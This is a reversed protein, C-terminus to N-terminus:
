KKKGKQESELIDACLLLAIIRPEIESFYWWYPSEKVDRPKFMSRFFQIYDHLACPESLSAVYLAAYCGVEWQSVNNAADRFVQPDLNTNM